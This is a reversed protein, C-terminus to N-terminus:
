ISVCVPNSESMQFNVLFCMYLFLSLSMLTPLQLWYSENKLTLSHFNWRLRNLLQLSIETQVLTTSRGDSQSQGWLWSTIFRGPSMEMMKGPTVIPITLVWGYCSNHKTISWLLFARIIMGVLFLPIFWLPHHPQWDGSHNDNINKIFVKVRTKAAYWDASCSPCSGDLSQGSRWRVTRVTIWFLPLLSGVSPASYRSRLIVM